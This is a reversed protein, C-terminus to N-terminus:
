TCPSASSSRSVRHEEGGREDAAKRLGVPEDVAVLEALAERRAQARLLQPAHRFRPKRLRLVVGRQERDACLLFEPEVDDGVALDPAFAIRVAERGREFADVDVIGAFSEIAGSVWDLQRPDGPFHAALVRHLDLIEFEQLAM